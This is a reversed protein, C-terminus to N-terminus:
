KKMAIVRKAAAMVDSPELGIAKRLYDEPGVEGFRDQAGIRQMPTPANEALAEAVAGGLGGLVNANEASVVAGCKKAYEVVTATDFPKISVIDIVAASVGEKELESAAALAVAVMIGAAVIVVDSGDRLVKAKGEEFTEDDAYIKVMDKRPTRIYTVGSRDKTARLFYEFQRDDAVDVLLAGPVTRYMAVDEFPMHTGGNFAATVGPDSGIIRVSNQAYGVSLFVQDFCRRSAFPGFTHAYPKKGVASMGGAVGVMNAEMIGCDICRDSMETQLKQTGFSNMLDADLYVVDKDENLLDRITSAFVDRMLRKGKSGDYVTKTIEAM